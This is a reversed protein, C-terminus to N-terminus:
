RRLGYPLTYYVVIGVSVSVNLSEKQGLMPIEVVMDSAECFSQSVGDIENGFIYAVPGESPELSYITKSKKTQEIVVLRYENLKLWEIAEETKTFTKYAVSNHAGLATKAIESVERGFRDVPQPTYGVLLILDIGAGEATRFIAGVNHASRVNELVIARM